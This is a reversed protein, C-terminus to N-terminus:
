HSSILEPHIRVAIEMAEKFLDERGARDMEHGIALFLSALDARNEIEKSPAIRLIKLIGECCRLCTELSGKQASLNALRLHVPLLRPELDVAKTYCEYAHEWEQQEYHIHGLNVLAELCAADTDLAKRYADGAERTKGSKKHALGLGLLSSLNEPKRKLSELYSRGADDWLSHAKYCDGIMQLCETPVPTERVAEQFHLSADSPNGNELKFDGLAVHIRWAEGATNIIAGMYTEPKLQMQEQVSLFQRAHHEMEAWRKLRHHVMVMVFHSDLHNGFLRLAKKAFEAARDLADLKLYSAAVIYHTWLLNPNRVGQSKAKALASLGVEISDEYQFNSAYCVALNHRHWYSEPEEEIQRMLLSSTREFKAAQEEPNLDYGYHLITSPIIKAHRYGRLQKHVINEYRIQPLRRFLRIKSETSFSAGQNFYSRITVYFADAEPDIVAERILTGSGEQLEEDGDMQLAWQGSAYEVSQNQHKSFDGEWPHHYVRAGHAQAIEVTRDTSGTDVVVIEDVWERVSSLCRPLGKEENRVIMCLSLEIRKM